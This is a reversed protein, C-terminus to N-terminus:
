NHLLFIRVLTINCYAMSLPLNGNKERRFVSLALWTILLILSPSKLSSPSAQGQTKMSRLLEQTVELLGLGHQRGNHQHCLGQLAAEFLGVIGEVVDGPLTESEAREGGGGAFEDLSPLQLLRQGFFSAWEVVRTLAGSFYEIKRFVFIEM